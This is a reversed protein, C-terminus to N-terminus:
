KPIVGTKAAEPSPAAPISPAASPPNTPQLAGPISFSGSAVSRYSVSSSCHGLSGDQNVGCCKAKGDEACVWVRGQINCISVTQQSTAQALRDLQATSCTAITPKKPRADVTAAVTLAVACPIVLYALHKLTSRM